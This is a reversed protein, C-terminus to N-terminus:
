FDLDLDFDDFSEKAQEKKRRIDRKKKDEYYEKNYERFPNNKHMVLEKRGPIKDLTDNLPDAYYDYYANKLKRGVKNVTNKVSESSYLLCEEIFETAEMTMDLDDLLEVMDSQEQTLQMNM